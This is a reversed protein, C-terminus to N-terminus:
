LVIILRGAGRFMSTPNLLENLVPSLVGCDNATKKHRDNKSLGIKPLRNLIMITNNPRGKHDTAGTRSEALENLVTVLNKAPRRSPRVVRLVPIVAHFSFDSAYDALSDGLLFGWALKNVRPKQVDFVLM